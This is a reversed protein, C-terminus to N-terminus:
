GPQFEQFKVPRKQFPMATRKIKLLRATLRVSLMLNTASLLARPEAKISALQYRVASRLDNTTLSQHALYYNSNYFMQRKAAAPLDPWKAIIWREVDDISKEMALTNRSMSTRSRRYGVLHSPVVAFQCIEALSLNLKWDESGKNFSADYGGVTDLYSRRILPVSANELFNGRAALDVIVNGEATCKDLVPPMLFDDEDIEVSWCYVLGVEPPSSNLRAVQRAIKDPHWLDDADLPAILSGRAKDIAFNRTAPLGSHPKQFFRVRDDRAAASEVIAATQDTSGDDAVVVELSPYTQGLVSDLTRGIFRQGNLVPIIVSVLPEEIKM